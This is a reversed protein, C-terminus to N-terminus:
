YRMTLAVKMTRGPAPMLVRALPDLYYRDTINNVAFDVQVHKNVRYSAYADFVWIPHWNYPANYGEVYKIKNKIWMKEDNNTASSHYVSRAGLEVDGNFLRMGADLNLSYKPQLSTRSFTTPFGATVCAAIARGYYPDLTAAYDSDCLQNKLRYSASFNAFYKGSDFRTQLDIGTYIKKDYQVINFNFDRDVFNKIKNQYYSIKFDAARFDPFIQKLDHVYGVEWNFAHEPTMKNNSVSNGGFGYAAQTDEYISPFRVFESYRAYVRAYDSLFATAGFMPTWAHDKKKKPLAWKDVPQAGYVLQSYNNYTEVLYRPVEKGNANIIKENLDIQGNLLPNQARDMKFGDYPVQVQDEKYRVGKARTDNINDLTAQINERFFDRDDETADPNNVEATMETIAQYMQNEWASYETATMARQFGIIAGTVPAYDQWGKDQNLRHKYLGDDFSNYDSYRAGANLVLWDTAAWEASINFNYQQRTGSRPGMHRNGWTSETVAKGESADWQNLKEHSFDASLGLKLTSSLKFMNGVDMGWRNHKSLQLSKAYINYRGDANPLKQPPTSPVNACNYTVGPQQCRVYNDWAADQAYISAAAIGFVDDGNQHRSSNNKTAWVGFNFDILPNGAPRWTYNMTYTDQKVESYPLQLGINLGNPNNRNMLSVMYPASEGFISNMHMYSASVIQNDPLNLSGKLLTTEMDSSTNAVEHQPHFMNALYTTNTSGSVQQADKKAQDLWNDNQYQESGGRGSFYNGRQRHSYAALVSFQEQKAAVAIRYAKDEFDFKTGQPGRRPTVNTGNGKTFTLHGDYGSYVGDIDRYDKGFNNFSSGNPKVSNTGTETKVELGFTEGPRVIDDVGLTKISVAGGVGSKVGATMSPGKEVMISSIMNPDVYNRNAVGAPGMWVSIAQESGDITVPIRGEGQVGRINPDLAGSNRADGSYVGNVGKFLDGVSLGKYREIDQKGVYANSVDKAFVNDQGVQDKNEAAGKVVVTGLERATDEEAIAVGQSSALVVSWVIPKLRCIMPMKVPFYM